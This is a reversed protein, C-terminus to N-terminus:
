ARDDEPVVPVFFAPRGTSERWYRQRKGDKARIPKFIEFDPTGPFWRVTYFLDDDEDKPHLILCPTNGAHQTTRVQVNGADPGRFKGKGHWPINHFRAVAMEGTAGVISAQWEGVNSKEIGYAPKRGLKMNEINRMAGAAAALLIDDYSLTIVAM